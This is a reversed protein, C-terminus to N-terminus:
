SASPILIIMVSYSYYKLHKVILKDIKYMCKHNTNNSQM